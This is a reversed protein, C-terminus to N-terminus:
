ILDLDLDVWEQLGKVTCNIIKRSEPHNKLWEEDEAKGHVFVTYMGLNKGFAMDTLSDGVMISQEFQIHPFDAKAEFAMDPKPKRRHHPHTALEPAVYIRDIRGGALTIAQKMQHHLLGLDAETMIGKGIGQQNTVIVITQFHNALTALADLVGPKFTFQQWHQVYGGPLRENIVGDRDLFLTWAPSISLM